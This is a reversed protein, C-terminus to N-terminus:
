PARRAVTDVAKKAGMALRLKGAKIGPYIYRGSKIVPRFQNNFRRGTPRLHGGFDLWGFYRAKAGGAKVYITNGGSVARVSGAAIGSRSPVRGKINSVVTTDAAIKLEDRLVPVLDPAFDRLFKRVEKLGTLYVVDSAM